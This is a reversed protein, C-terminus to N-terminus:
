RDLHKIFVWRRSFAVLLCGVLLMALTTPQPVTAGPPGGNPSLYDIGSASLITAGSVVHGAADLVTAAGWTGTDLFHGDVTGQLDCGNGCGGENGVVGASFWVQRDLLFEQGFTFPITLLLSMDVSQPHDFIFQPTNGGTVSFNFRNSGGCLGGGPGSLLTTACFISFGAQTLIAPQGVPPTSAFIGVSGTVRLPLLMTGSGGVGLPPSVILDDVFSGLATTAVAVNTGAAEVFAGFTAAGMAINATGTALPQCGNCLDLISRQFSSNAFTPPNAGITQSFSSPAPPPIAVPSIGSFQVISEAELTNPPLVGMTLALAPESFPLCSFVLAIIATMALGLRNVIM